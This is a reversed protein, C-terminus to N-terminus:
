QLIYKQSCGWGYNNNAPNDWGAAPPEICPWNWSNDWSLGMPAVHDRMLYLGYIDKGVINPGKAGNIDVEIEACAGSYGTCNNWGSNLLIIFTGDALIIEDNGGSAGPQTGDLYFWQGAPHWCASDLLGCRKIVRLYPVFATLSGNLDPTVGLGTGNHDNLFLNYANSIQNFSKKWATHMQQDQINTILGPITLAAVIGIIALTVLVEALTFGKKITYMKSIKISM